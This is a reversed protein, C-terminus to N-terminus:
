EIGKELVLIQLKESMLVTAGFNKGSQRFRIGSKALQNTM